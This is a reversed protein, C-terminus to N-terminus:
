SNGFINLHNLYHYLMYLPKRKEFGEDFPYHNQYSQYFADSFGGFMFTLAFDAERHGYYSATDIFYPHNKGSIINGSWLDGHLLTPKIDGDLLSPLVGELQLLQQCETQSLLKKQQAIKIQHLLRYQWYFEAWDVIKKGVANPQPTQGIKNDFEFGFYSSNNQHLKALEFGMQVQTNPNKGTDIWELILCNESSALVKPTHIIQTLLSLERGENILQQNPNDQTKIFVKQGSELTIKYASFLGTGVSQKSAVQQNLHSEIYLEVSM